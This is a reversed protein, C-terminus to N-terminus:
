INYIYERIVDCMYPINIDMCDFIGMQINCMNNNECIGVINNIHEM